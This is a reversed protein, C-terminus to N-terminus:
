AYIYACKLIANLGLLKKKQKGVVICPNIGRMRMVTRKTGIVDNRMRTLRMSDAMQM